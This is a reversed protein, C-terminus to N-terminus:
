DLPVFVTVWLVVALWVVELTFISYTVVAATRKRMMQGESMGSFRFIAIGTAITLVLYTGMAIGAFVFKLQESLQIAEDKGTPAMTSDPSIGSLALVAGLGATAIALTTMCVTDWHRTWEPQMEATGMRGLVTRM